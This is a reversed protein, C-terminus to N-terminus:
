MLPATMWVTHYDRNNGSNSPRVWLWGDADKYGQLRAVSAAGNLYWIGVDTPTAPDISISSTAHGIATMPEYAVDVSTDTAFASNLKFRSTKGIFVAKKWAGNNLSITHTTIGNVSAYRQVATRGCFKGDLQRPFAKSLDPSYSSSGFDISSLSNQSAFNYKAKDAVSLNEVALSWDFSGFSVNSSNGVIMDTLTAVPASHYCRGTKIFAGDASAFNFITGVHREVGCSATVGKSLEFDYAITPATGQGGTGDCALIGFESYTLGRFSFGGLRAGDCYLNHGSNSTGGLIRPGYNNGLTWIFEQHGIWCDDTEYPKDFYRIVMQSRVGFISSKAYYGNGTYDQSLKELVFDGIDAGALYIDGTSRPIEIIAVDLDYAAGYATGVKNATTKIIRSKYVGAGRFSPIRGTLGAPMHFVIPDTTRYDGDMFRVKKPWINTATAKAYNIAAQFSKCNLSYGPDSILGFHEAYVAGDWVRVLCGFGSPDTEGTGALFAPTSAVESTIPVTPSIIYGGNHQSKAITPDYIFNGGGRLKAVVASTHWAALCYTVGTRYTGLQCLAHMSSVSIVAKAIVEQFDNAAEQALLASAESADASAQAANVADEAAQSSLTRKGTDVAAGDVKRWVVYIEDDEDSQVLFMGGEPTAVLGEAVTTYISSSVSAKDEIIKIIQKLNQIDGSETPIGDDNIADNSFRYVINSGIEAKVTAIELRQTQDTM